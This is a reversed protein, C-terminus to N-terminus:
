KNQNEEMKERCIMLGDKGDDSKGRDGRGKEDEEEQGKERKEEEGWDKDVEIVRTTHEKRVGDWVRVESLMDMLDSVLKITFISNSERENVLLMKRFKSVEQKIQEIRKENGEYESLEELIELSSIAEDLPSLVKELSECAKYVNEEFGLEYDSKRSEDRERGGKSGLVM